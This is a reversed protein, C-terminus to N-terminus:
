KVETWDSHNEWIKGNLYLKFKMQCVSVGPIGNLREMTTRTPYGATRVKVAYSGDRKMFRRAIENGFLSMIVNGDQQSYCVQTNDNSFEFGGMFAAVAEKTIKRM